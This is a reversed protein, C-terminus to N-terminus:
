TMPKPELVPNMSRMRDDLKRSVVALYCLLKNTQEGAVSVSPSSIPWCRMSCRRTPSSRGPAPKTPPRPHVHPSLDFLLSEFWHSCHTEDHISDPV